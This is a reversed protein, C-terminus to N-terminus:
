HSLSYLLRLFFLLFGKQDTGGTEEGSQERLLLCLTIGLKRGSKKGLLTGKKPFDETM